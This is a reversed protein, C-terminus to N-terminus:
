RKSPNGSPRPRIPRRVPQQVPRVELKEVTDAKNATLTDAEVPREIRFSDKAHYRMLQIRDVLVMRLSDQRPIYVFGRIEKLKGLTDAHLQMTQGGSALVRRMTSLTDNEYLIQMSMVPIHLSDPMEAMRFRASWRLTDRDQFNSDALFSFVIKNDLPMGTLRYIRKWAWIDVSDGPQSEGVKDERMAILHNISAREDKMKKNINEYIKSLVEPNHSFWMMSSDFEAETIGYKHFVSELYLAKKYSENGPLENGMSKAIHYDYLVQEMKEDSFVTDPRKVKCGAVIGPLLLLNIWLVLKRKVRM